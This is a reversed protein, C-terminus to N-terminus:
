ISERSQQSPIKEDGDSPSAKPISDRRTSTTRIGSGKWREPFSIGCSCGQESPLDNWNPENPDMELQKQKLAYLDKIEGITIM